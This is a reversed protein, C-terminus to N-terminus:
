TNRFRVLIQEPLVVRKARRLRRKKSFNYKFVRGVIKTIYEIQFTKMMGAVHESKGCKSFEFSLPHSDSSEYFWRTAVSMFSHLDVGNPTALPLVYAHLEEGEINDIICVIGEGKYEILSIFAHNSENEICEVILPPISANKAEM